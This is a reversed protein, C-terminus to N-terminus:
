TDTKTSAPLSDSYLCAQQDECKPILVAQSSSCVGGEPGESDSGGATRELIRKEFEPILGSPKQINDELVQSEKKERQILSLKLLLGSGGCNETGTNGTDNKDERGLEMLKRKWQYWTSVQGDPAQQCPGAAEM